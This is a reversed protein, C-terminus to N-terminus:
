GLSKAVDAMDPAYYVSNLIKLDRHGSIKALTMVDVKKALRTLAERRTDHFHLDENALGAKDKIKRFNADLSASKLQFVSEKGEEKITALHRIIRIAFSSLPVTRAFGNKTKPLYVTANQLNVDEWKINCIEGARMATEIAFLLAAGVRSLSTVPLNEFSFGSVFVLKDIEDQSYRRERPPPEKPKEVLALPNNKLFDWKIAQHVVASLSTRERLVSLASVEKLRQTQWDEFHQKTLEELPVEGLPTKAIRLLRLREERAGGKNITVEKIYKDLLEAFTIKPIGSFEGADIQSEVAIAWRQGEAKTAFVASKSVGKKRIQVRYKGNAQKTITAM